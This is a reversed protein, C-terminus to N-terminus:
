ENGRGGVILSAVVAESSGDLSLMENVEDDVFGGWHLTGLGQTTASLDLAFSVMGAELLAFRYGRSGYKVVSREPVATVLVIFSCSAILDLDSGLAGSIVSTAHAQSMVELAHSRADYHAICPDVAGVNVLVLYIETPNLGGGSPYSRFRLVEGPVVASSATRTAFAPSLINSLDALSVADGNFQRTSRRSSIVDRFPVSSLAPSPLQIRTAQDYVKFNAATERVARAQTLYTGIQRGVKRADHPFLKTREHFDMVASIEPTTFGLPSIHAELVEPFGRYAVLHDNMASQEPFLTLNM